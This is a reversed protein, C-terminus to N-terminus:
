GGSWKKKTWIKRNTVLMCVSGWCILTAGGGCMVWRVTDIFLSLASVLCGRVAWTIAVLDYNAKAVKEAQM